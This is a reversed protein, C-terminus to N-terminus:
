KLRKQNEQAKTFHNILSKQDGRVIAKRFHALHEVYLDLAHLINKSNTMCIDNWMQPSSAAIRSTDKLGKSAYEFFKTPVSEMLGYALLHPLHSVYALIEDHEEPLLLKVEMGLKTWFHKVKQKAVQNTKETPTMLCTAGEFLDESAHVVGKKESGALPHSGVFFTPNSLLKEGYEVVTEKASGVDTVICGRKLYPDITTFLKVISDVPTALVVLDANSIAKKVDLCAVDIAKSKIAQDLANQRHSLGTVEKALGHKKIAMGLSGGMLGVGVISLSALSPM